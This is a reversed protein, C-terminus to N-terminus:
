RRQEYLRSAVLIYDIYSNTSKERTVEQKLVTKLVTVMIKPAVNLGFGLRIFYYTTRKYKVLQYLWLREAIHLQLYASKLDIITNAGM